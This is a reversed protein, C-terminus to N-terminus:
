RGCGFKGDSHVYFEESSKNGAYKVEILTVCEVHPTQKYRM